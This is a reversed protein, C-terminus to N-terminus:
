RAAGSKKSPKRKTSQKISKEKKSKKDLMKLHKEVDKLREDKTDPRAVRADKMIEKLEERVTGLDPRLRKKVPVEEKVPAKKKKPKKTAKEAKAAPKKPVAPAKTEEPLAVVEGGNMTELGAIVTDKKVGKGIVKLGRDSALKQLDSWSMSKYDPPAAEPAKKKEPKKVAKEAKAAPKKAPAKAKKEVKEKAISEKIKEKRKEEILKIRETSYSAAVKEKKTEEKPKEAKPAKKEKERTEKVGEMVDDLEERLTELDSILQSRLQEEKHRAVEIGEEKQDAERAEEMIGDLEERLTGLDSRIREKVVLGRKAVRVAAPRLTDSFKSLKDIVHACGNKVKLEKLRTSTCVVIAGGIAGGLLSSM